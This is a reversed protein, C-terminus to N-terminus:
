LCGPENRFYKRVFEREKYLEKDPETNRRNKKTMFAFVAPRPDHLATGKGNLSIHMITNITSEKLRSRQSTKINNYHSVVRETAMSHPTLALFSALLKKLIGCSAQTMKRLRLAYVTGSDNVTIDEIKSIRAWSQCVDAVFESLCDPGFMQCVLERSSVILDASTKADLIGFLNKMTDNEEINLRQDLFNIASQIIEIRISSGARDRNATPIRDLNQNHDDELLQEEKGGPVPMEKIVNLNNVAADRVSIVDLMILNSKQFIKQLNQFIVCLDFM